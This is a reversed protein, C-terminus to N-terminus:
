PIAVLTDDDIETWTSIEPSNVASLTATLILLEEDYKNAIATVWRRLKREVAANEAVLLLAPNDANTVEWGGEEFYEYYRNLQRDIQYQFRKEPIYDLFYRKPSNSQTQLSLFLDPLSNPFYSYRSMARQTFIRLGEHKNTLSNAIKFITLQDYVFSPSVTKDKYSQRIAKETIYDHDPVAKLARLGAPTLYYAIPMGSLKMKKDFHEAILEHKVLVQLREHLSSGAKIQLHEALLLRSGFRYQYLVDLLMIQNPNLTYRSSSM